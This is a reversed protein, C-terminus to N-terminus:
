EQGGYLMNIARKGGTIAISPITDIQRNWTAGEKIPYRPETGTNKMYDRWYAESEKRAQENYYSEKGTMNRWYDDWMQGYLERNHQSRVEQDRAKRLAEEISENM